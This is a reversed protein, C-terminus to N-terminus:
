LLWWYHSRNVECSDYPNPQWWYHSRKVECSDYPNPQWWYHSRKVECSDYPNPQWWYHSRKVECSDYPNPQWWYHSRKVKCSDYPNSHQFKIIIVLQGASIWSRRWRHIGGGGGVYWLPFHLVGSIENRPSLACRLGASRIKNWGENM